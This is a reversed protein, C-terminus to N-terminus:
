WEVNKPPLSSSKIMLFIFSNQFNDFFVFSIGHLHEVVVTKIMLFIFSNQFNDFFVFSIGHLHEAVVTVLQLFLKQKERGAAISHGNASHALHSEFYSSDVVLDVVERLRVGTKVLYPYVLLFITV